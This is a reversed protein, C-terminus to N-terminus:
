LALIRKEIEAIADIIERDDNRIMIKISDLAHLISTHDRVMRRAIEAYSCKTLKKCLYYAVCRMRVLDRTRRDSILDNININFYKITEDAISKISIFPDKQGWTPIGGNHRFNLFNPIEGADVRNPRVYLPPSSEIVGNVKPKAKTKPKPKVPEPPPAVKKERRAMAAQRRKHGDMVRRMVEEATKCDDKVQLWTM